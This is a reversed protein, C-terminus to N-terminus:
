GKGNYLNNKQGAFRTHPCQETEWQAMREKLYQRHAKVHTKKWTPYYARYDIGLMKAHEREFISTM